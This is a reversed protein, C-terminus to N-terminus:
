DIGRAKKCLEELDKININPLMRRLEISTLRKLSLLAGELKEIGNLNEIFDDSSTRSYFYTKAELVNTYAEIIERVETPTYSRM